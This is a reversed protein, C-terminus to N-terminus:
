ILLSYGYKTNESNMVQILKRQNLTAIVCHSTLWMADGNTAYMDDYRM